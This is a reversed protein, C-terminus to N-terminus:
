KPCDPQDGARELANKVVRETLLKVATPQVTKRPLRKGLKSVQRFVRKAAAVDAARVAVGGRFTETKIIKGTARDITNVTTQKFAGRGGTGIGLAQAQRPTIVGPGIGPGVGKALVVAPPPEALRQLAMPQVAAPAAAAAPVGLFRGAIAAGTGLLDSFFGM